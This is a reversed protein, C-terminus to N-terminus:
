HFLREGRRQAGLLGLEGPGQAAGRGSAQSNNVTSVTGLGSGSGADSEPLVLAACM